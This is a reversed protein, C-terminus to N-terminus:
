VVFDGGEHGGRLTLDMTHENNKFTHKVKEVMLWQNAIIDGLDLSVIVMTGGRVGINGFCGKVTLNRMKQDHLKLLADAKAQGNTKEDISEMHRLVGWKNIHDTDKAEYWKREGTEKNEYYLMVQNYTEGDISTTYDFNEGTEADILIPLKMSAINKLTLKGYDDYLVFMEGTNQVTLDLANQIIDFFTKNLEEKQEIVFGTDEIEGCQLSVDEALMKVVESAKKGKYQFTLKNKLYRLQDYATITIIGDKDRKKVFVFGYFCQVGDVSMMVPDGEHIDIINDKLVKFTLKGPVGKRELEWTVGEEVVPQFIRDKRQTYVNCIM